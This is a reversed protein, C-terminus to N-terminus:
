QISCCVPSEQGVRGTDQEGGQFARQQQKPSAQGEPIKASGAGEQKGAAGVVCNCPIPVSLLYSHRTQLFSKRSTVCQKQLTRGLLYQAATGHFLICYNNTAIATL